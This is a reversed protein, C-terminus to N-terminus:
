AETRTTEPITTEQRQEPMTPATAAAVGMETERAHMERAEEATLLGIGVLDLPSIFGDSIRFGGAAAIADRLPVAWHHELLILAAASDNPIEEIVDWAQEDSFVEAGEAAAEAGAEAGAEFGEEGEAGAEFGEEGEIGLGILAGVKSGLEIAEEQTLNSLHEVEIEGAADKYVALSDIVRVTDSDRLRELEAIIEGHFDPHRFGLVLLQVPGIAM